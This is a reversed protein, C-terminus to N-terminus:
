KRVFKQEMVAKGWQDGEYEQALEFGNREYLRRAPDLGKLTWLHVEDFGKDDCHRLAKDLLQRGLGSGRLHPELIFWRLHAINNGLDEGDITISAIVRQDELVSWSNNLPNSIRPMFEAMAQSVVSEFAPGNGVIPGHTRAHLASVDGIMGTQYGEVISHQAKQVAAGTRVATLADTYATLADALDETRTGNLSPLARRVLQDAYSSATELTKKGQDTLSLVQARGDKDHPATEIEGRAELSKVLRSITSKELNLRKALDKATLSGAHGLEIVAHVGSASLETGAITKALFGHERVFQRSASRIRSVLEVTTHSM